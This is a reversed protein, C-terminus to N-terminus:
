TFRHRTKQSLHGMGPWEWPFPSGKQNLLRYAEWGASKLSSGEGSPAEMGKPFPRPYTLESVLYGGGM